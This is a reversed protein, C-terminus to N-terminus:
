VYDFAMTYRINGATLNVVRNNLDNEKEPMAGGKENTIVNTKELYLEFGFSNFYQKILYFDLDSIRNLDVKNNEDGYLLAMGKTFIEVLCKFLDEVSGDESDMQFQISKAPEPPKQFINEIFDDIEYQENM